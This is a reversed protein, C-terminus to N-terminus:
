TIRFQIFEEKKLKKKKGYKYFLAMQKNQSILLNKKKEKM